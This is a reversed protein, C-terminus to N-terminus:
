IDELYYHSYVAGIPNNALSKDKVFVTTVPAQSESNFVCDAGVCFGVLVNLDTHRSNLYAAVRGPDCAPATENGGLRCGVPLVEFFRRLVDTLISAPERLDECFAVGLRQYGAGLAFYVLEAVRCLAREEELAVDWASELIASVEPTGDAPPPLELYPCPDGELCVRNRCAMCDAPPAHSMPAASSGPVGDRRGEDERVLDERAGGDRGGDGGAGDGRRGDEGVRGGDAHAGERGQAGGGGRRGGKGTGRPAEMSGGLGFGPRIEGMRLADLVEEETGAVNDIVAVDKERISERTSPSIGGCVLTEVEHGVLVAALDAWTTGELPVSSKEQIRRRRLTVLLVSDAFTCRPAVRSGLLPIGFRM